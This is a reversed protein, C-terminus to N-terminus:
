KLKDGFRRLLERMVRRDIDETRWRYEYSAFAMHRAVRLLHRNPIQKVYKADFAWGDYIQAVTM